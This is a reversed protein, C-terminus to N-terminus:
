AILRVTTTGGPDLRVRFALDKHRTVFSSSTARSLYRM